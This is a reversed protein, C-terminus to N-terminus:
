YTGNEIVGLAENILAIVQEETQYGLTSIEDKTIFDSMDLTAGGSYDIWVKIDEDTPAAEGVYVGSPGPKGDEGPKGDFYDVGKIPTYGDEGDRGDKGDFYDIGKIPTYGPDGKIFEKASVMLDKNKETYSIKIM